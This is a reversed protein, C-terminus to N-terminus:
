QSDLSDVLYQKKGLPRQPDGLWLLAKRGQVEMGEVTSFEWIPLIRRQRYPLVRPHHFLVQPVCQKIQQKSSLSTSCSMWVRLRPWKMQLSSTSHISALEKNKKGLVQRISKRSSPFEKGSLVQIAKNWDKCESKKNLCRVQTDVLWIDQSWNSYSSPPKVLFWKWCPYPYLWCTELLATSCHQHNLCGANIGAATHAKHSLLSGLQSNDLFPHDELEWFNESSGKPVAKIFETEM